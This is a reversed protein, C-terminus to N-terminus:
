HPALHLISRLNPKFDAPEDDERDERSPSSCALEVLPAACGASALSRVAAQLAIVCHTTCAVRQLQQAAARLRPERVQIAQLADARSAFYATQAHGTASRLGPGGHQMALQARGCTLSNALFAGSSEVRVLAALCALVSRDHSTASDM